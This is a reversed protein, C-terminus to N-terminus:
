SIEINYLIKSLFIWVNKSISPISGLAKIPLSDVVQTVGGTRSVSRYNELRDRLYGSHGSDVQLIAVLIKMITPCISYHYISFYVIFYMLIIEFFKFNHHIILIARPM